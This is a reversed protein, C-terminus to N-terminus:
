PTQEKHWNRGADVMAEAMKVIEPDAPMSVEATWHQSTGVRTWWVWRSSYLDVTILTGTGLDGYVIPGYALVAHIIHAGDIIGSM